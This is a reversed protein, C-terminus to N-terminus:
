SMGSDSNEQGAFRSDGPGILDRRALALLLEGLAPGLERPVLEGLAGRYFELGM